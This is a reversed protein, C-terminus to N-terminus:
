YVLRHCYVFSKLRYYGEFLTALFRLDPRFFALDALCFRLSLLNPRIALALDLGFRLFAELRLDLDLVLFFFLLVFGRLFLLFITLPRDLIVDFGVKLFTNSAAPATETAVVTAANTAGEITGVKCLGITLAAKPKTVPSKM